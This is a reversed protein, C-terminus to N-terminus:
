AEPNNVVYGLRALMKNFLKAFVGFNINLRKSTTDNFEVIGFYYISQPLNKFEEKILLGLVGRARNNAPSREYVPIDVSTHYFDPPSFIENIWGLLCYKHGKKFDKRCFDGAELVPAWEPYGQKSLKPTTQKRKM